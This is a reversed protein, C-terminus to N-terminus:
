GQISSSIFQEMIEKAKQKTRFVYGTAVINRELSKEGDWLGIYGAYKGDVPGCIDIRINEQTTKKLVALVDETVYAM